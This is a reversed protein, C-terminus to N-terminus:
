CTGCRSRGTRRFPTRWHDTRIVYGVPADMSLRLEDVLVMAAAAVIPKTFSAVRFLSDRQMPPGGFAADGLVEVRTEGEHSVLSVLGPLDGREVYSSLM